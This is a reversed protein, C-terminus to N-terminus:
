VPFDSCSWGRQFCKCRKICIKEQNKVEKSGCRCSENKLSKVIKLKDDDHKMELTNTIRPKEKTAYFSKPHLQVLVYVSQNKLKTGRISSIQNENSANIIIVIGQIKNVFTQLNKILHLEQNKDSNSLMQLLVKCCKKSPKISEDICRDLLDLKSMADDNFNEIVTPIQENAHLIM